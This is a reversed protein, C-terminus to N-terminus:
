FSAARYLHAESLMRASAPQHEALCQVHRCRHRPKRRGHQHRRAVPALLGLAAQQGEAEEVVLAGGRRNAVKTNALDIVMCAVLLMM